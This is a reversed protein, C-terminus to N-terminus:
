DSYEVGCGYSPTFSTAVPKDAALDALAARVYNRAGKVTEPRATPRDDIAGQYAVYGTKDIVVMTPTTKVDYLHGITGDTDLIRATAVSGTEAMIKNSQAADAYGAAGKASSAISLWIAGQAVADKQLAQM